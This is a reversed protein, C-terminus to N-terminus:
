DKRKFRIRLGQVQVSDTFRLRLVDEFRKGLRLWLCKGQVMYVFM